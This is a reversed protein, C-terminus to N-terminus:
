IINKHFFFKSSIWSIIGALFLNEKRERFYINDFCLNWPYLDDAFIWELLFKGGYTNSEVKHAANNKGINYSLFIM